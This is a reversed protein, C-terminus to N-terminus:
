KLYNKKVFEILYEYSKKSTKIFEQIQRWRIDMYEHTIINRLGAFESLKEATKKDFEGKVVELSKMTDKYTEPRPLKESALIIKAIDISANVINELWHEVDRKIHRNLSYEKWDLNKFDEYSKIEEGLFETLRFLREKDTESLSNSREKVRRYDQSFEMFDLASSHILSYFNWYLPRNKIIIPIGTQLVDFAVLPRAKNLIVLDVNRKIIKEVNEWIQNEEPYIKDEESEVRRKVPKFYVAIDVDSDYVAQGKAFSGFLFAMVVDDRKEFYDKLKRMIEGSQEIM